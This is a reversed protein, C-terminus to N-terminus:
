PRFIKPALLEAAEKSLGNSHKVAVVSIKRMDFCLIKKPIERSQKMNHKARNRQVELSPRSSQFRRISIQLYCDIDGSLREKTLAFM